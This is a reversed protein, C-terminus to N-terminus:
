LESTVRDHVSNLTTVSFADYILCTGGIHEIRGDYKRNYCDKRKAAIKSNINM